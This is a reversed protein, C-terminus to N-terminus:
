GNEQGCCITDEKNLVSRKFIKDLSVFAHKAERETPRHCIPTSGITYHSVHQVTVDYYALEFELPVIVNM